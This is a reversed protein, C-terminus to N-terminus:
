WSPIYAFSDFYLAAHGTANKSLFRFFVPQEKGTGLQQPVVSMEWFTGSAAAPPPTPAPAPPPIPPGGRRGVCSGPSPWTASHNEAPAVASKLWCDHGGAHAAKFVFAACNHTANCLQQCAAASTAPHTDGRKPMDLGYCCDQGGKCGASGPQSPAPAPSDPGRLPFNLLLIPLEDGILGEQDFNPSAAGPLVRMVEAPSPTGAGNNSGTPDFTADVASFRNATWVRAGNILRIPPIAGQVEHLTPEAPRPPNGHIGLLLNGMIDTTAGIVQQKTMNGLYVDDHEVTNSYVRKPLTIAEHEEDARPAAQGPAPVFTISGNPTSLDECALLNLPPTASGPYSYNSITAMATLSGPCAQAAARGVPLLLAPLLLLVAM